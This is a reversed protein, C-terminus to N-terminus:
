PSVGFVKWWPREWESDEEGSGSDKAKRGRTLDGESKKKNEDKKDEEESSVSETNGSSHSCMEVDNNGPDNGNTEFIVGGVKEKQGSEGVPCIQKDESGPQEGKTEGKKREEEKNVSESHEDSSQSDMEVDNEHQDRGASTASGMEEKGNEKVESKEKSSISATSEGVTGEMKNTEEDSKKSCPIDIENNGSSEKGESNAEKGKEGSAGDSRSINGNADCTAHPDSHETEKVVDGILEEHGTEKSVTSDNGGQTCQQAVALPPPNQEKADETIQNGQSSQKKKDSSCYFRYKVHITYTLTYM